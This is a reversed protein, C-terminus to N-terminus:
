MMQGEAVGRRGTMFVSEAVMRAMTMERVHNMIADTVDEQKAENNIAGRGNM